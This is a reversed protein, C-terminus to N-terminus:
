DPPFPRQTRHRTKEAYMAQDAAALLQSAQSGPGGVALGVSVGITLDPDAPLGLPQNLAARVRHLLDTAHEPTDVHAAVVLEDGGLRAVTDDPRLTTQLRRVVATLVQDGREHGFTDNVTKFDDLDCFLVAVRGGDR